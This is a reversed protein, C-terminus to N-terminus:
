LRPPPGADPPIPPGDPISRLDNCPIFRVDSWRYGRREFTPIDMIWRKQGKELLYIHPRIRCKLLIPQNQEYVLQQVNVPLGEVATLDVRFVWPLVLIVVLTWAIYALAGASFTRHLALVWDAAKARAQGALLLVLVGINVLNWGIFTVRNPTPRDIATRYVIAALAYLSVILTLAAAAVIGRRLWTQVSSPLEGPRVPTAGVLLAMVAFLMGNYTILVDRNEFPQRFNFPIFGLYVVLVLLTLPLLVRMLLAVLKSLGEDFAQEGPSVHPDYIVAVALVPILGGGGAFFLRQVLEPPDVGLAAFLGFTIATFLGGAIVFLGGMIFVELSKILFAFRHAPDRNDLLLFIGVSAWALLPLHMA